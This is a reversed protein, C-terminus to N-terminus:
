RLAAELMERARELRVGAIRLTKRRSTAGSAVEAPARFFASAAEVLEANARGEEARAAVAAEVRGRWANWGSPFSARRAAPRVDVDLLVGDGDRRLAASV